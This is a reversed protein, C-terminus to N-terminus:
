KNKQLYKKKPLPFLPSKAKHKSSINEGKSSFWSSIWEPTFYIFLILDWYKASEGQIGQWKIRQTTTFVHVDKHENKKWKIGDTGPFIPAKPQSICLLIWLSQM